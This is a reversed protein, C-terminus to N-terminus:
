RAQFWKPLLNERGNLAFNSAGIELKQSAMIKKGFNPSIQRPDLYIPAQLPKL